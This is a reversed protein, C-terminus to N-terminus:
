SRRLYEEIEGATGRNLGFLPMAGPVRTVRVWGRSVLWNLAEEAEPRSSDVIWWGVLGDMTDKSEPHELLYRLIARCLKENV